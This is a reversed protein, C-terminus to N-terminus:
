QIKVGSFQASLTKDYGSVGVAFRLEKIVQVNNPIKFSLTASFPQSKVAKHATRDSSNSAGINIGSATYENEQSDTAVSTDTGWAAYFYTYEDKDGQTKVVSFRCSVTTLKRTCKQLKFNLVHDEAFTLNVSSSSLRVPERQADEDKILTGCVKKGADTRVCAKEQARSPAVSFMTINSILLASLLLHSKMPLRIPLFYNIEITDSNNTLTFIYNYKKCYKDISGREISGLRSKIQVYISFVSTESNFM